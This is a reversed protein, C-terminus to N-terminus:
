KFSAGKDKPSCPLNGSILLQCSRKEALPCSPELQLTSHFIGFKEALLRQCQSLIQPYNACSTNVLLHASLAPIRGSINWIHLDHINEVGQVAELATLVEETKLHAPTGEMLIHLAERTLGYAGRMILLSIGISILPDVLYWGYRLVFWGGLLVGVSGLADAM